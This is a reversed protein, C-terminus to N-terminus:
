SPRRADRGASPRASKSRRIPPGSPFETADLARLLASRILTTYPIHSCQALRRYRAVLDAPLRLTVQVMRRTPLDRVEELDALDMSDTRDFFNALEELDDTDPPYLGGM